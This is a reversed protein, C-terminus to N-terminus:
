TRILGRYLIELDRTFKHSDFLPSSLRGSVLRSQLSERFSHDTTVRLVLREYEDLSKTVLEPLGGATLISGSVRSAFTDGCLAVLLCDSWLADSATTHSTYPLTDLALDAARYRALHLALPVKPAFILRDPSIDHALAAGKLNNTAWRNDQLLWLVSGPTAHMLRMWVAFVEPTIKYAQNFCCFVFADTPLGYEARPLTAAVARKRDNPQYCHPMRLVREAYASAKAPPILFNDAIIYDIFAAGMTGPYGLWNIQIPCLRRALLSTRAGMTHGKLDVLIDLQDDQIRRAALDDPERALEVFHECASRLRAHMSSQDDPGYSYAIVEFEQRDHLELVEAILYAVAHEYFDSSFYGIRLRARSKATDTPRNTRAVPSFYADCWRRTYTLQQEPTTPECLLSFPTVAATSSELSTSLRSWSLRWKDWECLRRLGFTLKGLM